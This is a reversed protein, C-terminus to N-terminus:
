PPGVLLMPKDEPQLEVHGTRADAGGRGTPAAAALPEEAQPREAASPPQPQALKDLIHETLALQEREADLDDIDLGKLRRQSERLQQKLNEDQV